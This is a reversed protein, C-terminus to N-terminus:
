PGEDAAFLTPQCTPCIDVTGAELRQGDVTGYAPQAAAQGCTCDGITDDRQPEGVDDVRWPTGEPGLRTLDMAVIGYRHPQPTDVHLDVEAGGLSVPM